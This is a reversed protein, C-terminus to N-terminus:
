KLRWPGRSRPPKAALLGDQRLKTAGWRLNYQWSYFLDGSARLDAEHYEWVYKSVERLSAEGDHSKLADVIWSKLDDRTPM